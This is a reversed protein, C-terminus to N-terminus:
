IFKNFTEQITPWSNGVKFRISLLWAPGDTLNEASHPVGIRVASPNKIENTDLKKVIESEMYPKYHLPEGNSTSTVSNIDTSMDITQYWSMAIKHNFSWNLAWAQEGGSDLHIPLKANPSFYFLLAGPDKLSLSDAWDVFDHNIIDEKKYKWVAWNKDVKPFVFDKKLPNIKINLNLSLSM